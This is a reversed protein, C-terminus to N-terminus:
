EFYLKGFYESLHFDPNETEVPNWAYYHEQVTLDGCKYFNGRMMAGSEAKFEPFFRQVFAVPIRYTLQWGDETRAAEAGFPNEDHSLLRILDYRDTGIGLYLCCNPNMEVNFYTKNHPMPCFFFELCSDLCPMGVEGTEQARINAEKATMRVYIAEEDYCLQAQASIGADPLWQVTDVQLAPVNNWNLEENKKTIIYSKM